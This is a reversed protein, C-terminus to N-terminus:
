PSRRRFLLHDLSLAGPGRAILVILIAAWYAHVTWWADPFVFIQIVLTMMLLGLASLRTLLGIFLLLPLIFEMASAMYASVTPSILPVKYEDAFLAFTADRIATPIQFSMDVGLIEGGITPGEIKTQGSVFFPHAAVIRLFLAILSYPIADLWGATRRIINM